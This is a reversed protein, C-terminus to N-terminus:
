YRLIINSIVYAINVVTFAIFLVGYFNSSKLTFPHAILLAYGLAIFPKFVVYQNVFIMSFVFSSILLILLYSLKARTQISDSHLNSFLGTLGIVIIVFLCAIYIIENLPRTLIPWGTEFGSFLDSVWLMDPQLYYRIAFYFIWPVLGGFISALWTRLSFSYLRIFGIWCVPLFLILPEIFLSGTAILLSGLFAQESAQRNRFMDFFVFLSMILLTLAFHSCVVEHTDNWGAILLLFVIVPLFTRTRIITFRNNLQTILLANLLTILLSALNVFFSYSLINEIAKALPSNLEPRSVDGAFIFGATWIIVTIIVMLVSLPISPAIFRKLSVKM